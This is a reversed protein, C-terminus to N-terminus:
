NDEERHPKLPGSNSHEGTGNTFKGDADMTHKNEDFDM